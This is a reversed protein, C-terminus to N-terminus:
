AASRITRLPATTARTLAEVYEVWSNDVIENRGPRRWLRVALAVFVAVILAVAVAALVFTMGDSDAFRVFRTLASPGRAM